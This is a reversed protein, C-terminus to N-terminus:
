GDVGVMVVTGGVVGECLAVMAVVCSAVECVVAVLSSAVGWNIVVVCSAVGRVIAGVCFAVEHGVCCIMTGEVCVLSYVVVMIRAIIRLRARKKITHRRLATRM